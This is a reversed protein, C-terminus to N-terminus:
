SCWLRWLSWTFIFSGISFCGSRCVTYCNHVPLFLVWWKTDWWNTCPFWNRHHSLHLTVEIGMM